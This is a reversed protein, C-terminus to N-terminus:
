PTAWRQRLYARLTGMESDSLAREYMVLEAIDGHFSYDGLEPVDGGIQSGVFLRSYFDGLTTIAVKAIMNKAITVGDLLVDGNPETLPGFRIELLHPAGIVFPAVGFVEGYDAKGWVLLGGKPTRRIAYKSDLAIGNSSTSGWQSFLTAFNFSPAPVGARYVSLATFGTRWTPLPARDSGEFVSCSFAGFSVTPIGNLTAGRTPQRCQSKVSARKMSSRDTWSTVNGAADLVADEAALWFALAPRTAPALTPTAADTGGNGVSGGGADVVTRASGSDGAATDRPDGADMDGSNGNSNSSGGGNGAGDVDVSSPLTPERRDVIEDLPKSPPSDACALLVDLMAVGFFVVRLKM